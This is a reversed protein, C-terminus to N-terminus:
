VSLRRRRRLDSAARRGARCLGPEVMPRASHEQGAHQRDLASQRHEQGRRHLESRGAFSGQYPSRRRRQQHLRLPHRGADTVSCNAMNHQSVGLTKMMDLTWIVAPENTTGAKRKDIDLCKVEGRSTVYWLRHGEVLPTSCVGELPWDNVRGTPLKESSDQWLFKGDDQNFCLLVGLDHEPPYQKLYGSGNNTGIFVKGNAVIPHQRLGQSGLRAVWKINKRRKKKGLAPKITSSASM